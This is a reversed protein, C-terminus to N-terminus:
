MNKVSNRNIDKHQMHSRAIESVDRYRTSADSFFRDKPPISLVRLVLSIRYIAIDLLYRRIMAIKRLSNLMIAM